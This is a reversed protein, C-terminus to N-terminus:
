YLPYPASRVSSSGRVHLILGGFAFIDGRSIAKVPGDGDMYEPPIFGKGGLTQGTTTFGSSIEQITRALGFDCWAAEGADTVLVNDPKIDGHVM